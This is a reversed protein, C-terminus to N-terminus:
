SPLVSGEARRSEEEMGEPVIPFQRPFLGPNPSLAKECRLACSAWGLLRM